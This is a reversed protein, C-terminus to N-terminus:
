ALNSTPRCAYWVLDFDVWVIYICGIAADVVVSVPLVVQRRQGLVISLVKDRYDALLPEMPPISGDDVLIIEKLRRSPTNRIISDVTGTSFRVYSYFLYGTVISTNINM